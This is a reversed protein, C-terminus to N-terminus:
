YHMTNAIQLRFAEAHKRLARRQFLRTVVIFSYRYKAWKWEKISCGYRSHMEEFITEAYWWCMERVMRYEPRRETVMAFLRSVACIDPRNSEHFNLSLLPLPLNYHHSPPDGSRWNWGCVVWDGTEERGVAIRTRKRTTSDEVIFQIFEHSFPSTLAKVWTMSVVEYTSISESRALIQKLWDATSLREYESSLQLSADRHQGGSRVCCNTDTRQQKEDAM